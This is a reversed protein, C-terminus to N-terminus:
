PRDGGRMRAGLLIGIIGLIPNLFALWLPQQAGSMADGMSVNAPRVRMPVEPGFVQLIAIGFGLVLVLTLLWMIAVPDKGIAICVYGGAVAAIIGVVLSILIWSMTIDWSDPLFARDAGLGIWAVSMLGMVGVFMVAYGALVAGFIRGM